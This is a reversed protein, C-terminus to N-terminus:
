RPDGKYGAWWKEGEPTRGTHEVKDAGYKSELRNMLATAVGRRRRSEEVQINDVRAGTETTTYRIHGAIPVDDGPIWASLRHTSVRRDPGVPDDWDYPDEIDEFRFSTSAAHFEGNRSM